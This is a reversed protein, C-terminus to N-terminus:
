AQEYTKLRQLLRARPTADTAADPTPMAAESALEAVAADDLLPAAPANDASPGAGIDAVTKGDGFHGQLARQLERARASISARPAAPATKAPTAAPVVPRLTAGTAVLIDHASATQRNGARRMDDRFQTAQRAVREIAAALEARLRGSLDRERELDGEVRDMRAKLWIKSERVSANSAPDGARTIAENEARLRAIEDTQGRFQTEMQQLREVTLALEDPPNTRTPVGRGVAELDRNLQQILVSQEAIKGRLGPADTGDQLGAMAAVSRPRM